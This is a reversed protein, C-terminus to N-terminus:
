SYSGALNNRTLAELRKLPPQHNPLRSQLPVPSRSSAKPWVLGVVEESCFASRGPLGSLPALLAGCPALRPWAVAVSVLLPRGTRGDGGLILNSM